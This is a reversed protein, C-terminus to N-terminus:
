DGLEGRLAEVAGDRRHYGTEQILKEAKSVHEAAKDRQNQALCLRAAELHYDALHLRMEGFQAIEHAETLDDWAPQFQNTARFLAARALLARPLYDSRGAHRLEEVSANLHTEATSFENTGDALAHLFHAHGLSLNSLAFDLISAYPAQNVWELAQTARELVEGHREERGLLDCYQYGRQSYLRPYKPQGEMQLGEAEQFFADSADLDGAQHLANARASRTTVKDKWDGSRDAFEVSRQGYAVAEAVDGLTLHLESLNTANIAAHKWNEDSVSMELGAAMPEVAERLRGMARLHFGAWNLLGAKFPEVGAAPTTWATEFFQFVAALDAGFAGLKKVTYADQKRRIRVLYVEDLAEQHRGARCGHAVAAFLPEMEELTDPLEKEPLAKYYEYLRGHAEKWGEPFDTKLLEGFHERVLPHCDLADPRDEDKEALLRLKRLEKVALKWGKEDLGKLADTLGPIPEGATVADIAGKEAPRDFLGMIRLISLARRGKETEALWTEYAEMVRRAHGGQGVEEDALMPIKDRQRVDGDFLTELYTGLLNLALAHGDFEKSATELEANPGKVGLRELVAAGAEPSLHQLEMRSVTSNEHTRLDDVALRTTIVCLGPNRVALNRLLARLAEDKLKGEQPGPPHQVPELGDLILLTREAQVLAALRRGKEAPSGAEPEQDGFWRLAADVFRDASAQKGEGAGQSYFSWGFVRTAGRCDDAGCLERVWRNMLASKGVGGWAVITVINTKPFEWASDLAALEEERGFLHPDTIPLSDIQIKPPTPKSPHPNPLNPPPSAQNYITIQTQDGTAVVGGLNDRLSANRSNVNGNGSDADSAGSRELNEGGTLDRDNESM